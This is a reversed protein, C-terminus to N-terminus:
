AHRGALIMCSRIPNSRNGPRLQNSKREELVPDADGEPASVLFGTPHGDM